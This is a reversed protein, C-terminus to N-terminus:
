ALVASPTPTDHTDKSPDVEIVVYGTGYKSNTDLIFLQGDKRGIQCHYRSVWPFNVKLEGDRGLKLQEGEVIIRTKQDEQTSAPYFEFDGNINVIVLGIPTLEEGERTTIIVGSNSRLDFAKPVNSPISGKKQVEFSPNFGKFYEKVRKILDANLQPKPVEM